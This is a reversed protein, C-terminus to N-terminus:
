GQTSNDDIQQQYWDALQDETWGSDLYNQVQELDWGPFRSMDPGSAVIPETATGDLIPMDFNKVEGLEEFELDFM